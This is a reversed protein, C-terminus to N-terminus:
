LPKFNPCVLNLSGKKMKELAESMALNNRSENAQRAEEVVKALMKHGSKPELLKQSRGAHLEKLDEVTAMFIICQKRLTKM